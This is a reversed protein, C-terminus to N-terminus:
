RALHSSAYEILKDKENVLNGSIVEELIEELMKGIEEGKLGLRKMDHGNIALDKVRFASREELISAAIALTEEKYIPTVTAHDNHDSIQLDLLAGLLFLPDEEIPDIKALAKKVSKPTLAIENDHHLILFLIKEKEAIPFRYEELIPEAMNRSALPHGYFHKVYTGNGKDEISTTPVKGIDHFLAAVRLIFLPPVGRVVHVTHTYLDYEHWTNHQDYDFCPVLDPFLVGFIDRYTQLIMEIDDALMITRLEALIREKSVHALLHCHVIMANTTKDDIAYDLSAHFRLVRLIRLPDEKIISEPDDGMTLRKNELDELGGRPDIIGKESYALANITLDRHYLDEEISTGRYTSIELNNHEIRITVTGHKLGNNNIQKFDKFIMCIEDIKANTALDFDHAEKGLLMDRIAGGVVFVEFGENELLHIARQVYPPIKISQM